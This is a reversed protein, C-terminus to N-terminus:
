AMDVDDHELEPQLNSLFLPRDCGPCETVRHQALRSDSDFFVRVERGQKEVSSVLIPYGCIHYWTEM